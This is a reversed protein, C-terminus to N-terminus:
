PYSLCSPRNGAAEYIGDILELTALASEPEVALGGGNRVAHCFDAIQYRHSIGYYHTVGSPAVPEDAAYDAVARMLDKNGSWHQLRDPHDIDFAVTGQRGVLEIRSRWFNSSATSSAITGLAGTPSQIIACLTDETEIVDKLALTEMAAAVTRASGLLWSVLDVCHYTQNMLASGGERLWTGRWYSDGYYAEDRGCELLVTVLVLEGLLGEDVWRKVTRVLLDYRHQSVVALVLNSQRALKCLTRGDKATMAIPKELLVHKGAKLAATALTAHQAHDVAVSVSTVAPDDLVQQVDTTTAPIQHEAAFSRAVRADRDCAWALTVGPVQRFGDVHNPAVRGCGVLAHVLSQVPPDTM